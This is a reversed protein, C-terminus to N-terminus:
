LPEHAQEGLLRKLQENEKVVEEADLVPVMSFDIEGHKGSELERKWHGVMNASLEYRRAVAALNGTEKAEKVVQKKFDISYKRRTM